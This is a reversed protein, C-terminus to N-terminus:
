FQLLPKVSPATVALKVDGDSETHYSVSESHCLPLTSLKVWPPLFCMDVELGEMQTPPLTAPAPGYRSFAKDAAITCLKLNNALLLLLM